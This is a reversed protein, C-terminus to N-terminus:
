LLPWCEVAKLFARTIIFHGPMHGGVPHVRDASFEMHHLSKQLEDFEKQVDCLILDYVGALRRVEDAYALTMKTMPDQYNFDTYYPTMLVIGKVFPKTREILKVYTDVYEDIDVWAEPQFPCDFHRWVDNIGIMISVWDPKLDLVDTDWRNYIDRIRNGSIGTNMVHIKKEPLYATLMGSVLKVYGEGLGYAAEGIPRARGCDTISDGTFLLRSGSEIKM